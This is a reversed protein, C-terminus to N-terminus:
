GTLGPEIPIVSVSTFLADEDSEGDPTFVYVEFNAGSDESMVNVIVHREVGATLADSTSYTRVAFFISEAPEAPIKVLARGNFLGGSSKITFLLDLVKHDGEIYFLM